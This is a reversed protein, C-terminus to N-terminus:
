RRLRSADDSLPRATIEKWHRIDIELPGQPDSFGGKRAVYEELRGIKQEPSLEGPHDSGPARGWIIRSGSTTRLTYVADNPNADEALNPIEIAQLQLKKWSPGLVDAIRAADEITRDHWTNGAETPPSSRANTIIPFEDEAPPLDPPPLLVAQKDVAFREAETVVFAAPKRYELVVTVRHPFEKRVSVVHDVWPHKQFAAAVHDVLQPDLTSLENDLTGERFVQRLFTRPVWPPADTYHIDEPKVVYEPRHALDPLWGLAKPALFYFAIGAIVLLIIAPGLIWRALVSDEEEEVFVVDSDSDKLSKKARRAM